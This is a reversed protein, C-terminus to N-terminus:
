VEVLRMINLTERCVCDFWHSVSAIVGIAVKLVGFLKASFLRGRRVVSRREREL